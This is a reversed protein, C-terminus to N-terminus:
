MEEHGAQVRLTGLWTGCTPKQVQDCCDTSISCKCGKGWSPGVMSHHGATGLQAAQGGAQLASARRILWLSVAATRVARSVAATAPSCAGGQLQPSGTQHWPSLRSILLDRVRPPPM